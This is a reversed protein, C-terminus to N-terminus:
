KTLDLEAPRPFVPQFVVEPPREENRGFAVLKVWRPMDLRDHLTMRTSLRRKSYAGYSSLLRALIRVVQEFDEGEVGEVLEGFEHVQVEIVGPTLLALVRLKGPQAALFGVSGPPCTDLPEFEPCQDVSPQGLMDLASNLIGLSWAMDADHVDIGRVTM